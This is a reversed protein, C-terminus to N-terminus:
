KSRHSRMGGPSHDLIRDFERTLAPYCECSLQELGPRDLITMRGQRYSILRQAQLKEAVASISPRRVGLMQSVSQQTLVFSDTQLRDHAMLLWRACRQEIRHTNNCVASQALMFTFVHAYRGIIAGLAPESRIRQVFSGAAMRLAVGPAQSVAGMPCRETGFYIPLGFFGESGAVGVEVWKDGAPMVFSILGSCPFYVHRLPANRRHLVLKPSLTFPELEHSLAAMSRAPLAALLRNDAADAVANAEPTMSM